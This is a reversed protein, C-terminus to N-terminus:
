PLLAYLRHLVFKLHFEVEALLSDILISQPLQMLRRKYSGEIIKRM